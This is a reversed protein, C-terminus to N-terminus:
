RWDIAHAALGTIRELTGSTNIAYLQQQGDVILHAINATGAVNALKGVPTVKAVVGNHIVYATQNRGQALAQVSTAIAVPTSGSTTSM